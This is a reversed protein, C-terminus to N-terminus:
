RWRAPVGIAMIALTALALISGWFLLWYLVDRVGLRALLGRNLVLMVLLAAFLYVLTPIDMM